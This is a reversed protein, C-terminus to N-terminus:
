QEEETGLRGAEAERHQEERERMREEEAAKARELEERLAALREAHKDKAQDTLMALHDEALDPRGADLQALVLQEGAKFKQGKPDWYGLGLSFAENPHGARRLVKIAEALAKGSDDRQVATTLRRVAGDLDSDVSLRALEILPYWANPRASLEEALSWLALAARDYTGTAGEDATLPDEVEGSSGASHVIEALEAFADIDNPDDSLIERLELGRRAAQSSPSDPSENVQLLQKLLDLFAM